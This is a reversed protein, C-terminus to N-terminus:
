ASVVAAVVAVPLRYLFLTQASRVRFGAGALAQEVPIPRCDIVSPFAHHLRGYLRAVAGPRAVRSLAVAALRGGPRLVRRCERLVLPIEGESFLELTFSLLLGDFAAAALPLRRADGCVVSGQGLRARARRCMGPSLDLGAVRGEPGVAQALAPLVQGTGCGLDLVAEGPQVALARLGAERYPRESAAFLDYWPSLRDYNAQAM